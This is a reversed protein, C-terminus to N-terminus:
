ARLKSLYEHLSLGLSDAMRQRTQVASPISPGYDAIPKDYARGPRAVFEYVYPVATQRYLRGCHWLARDSYALGARNKIYESDARKTKWWHVWLRQKNHTLCLKKHYIKTSKKASQTTKYEMRYFPIPNHNDIPTMNKCLASLGTLQSTNELSSLVLRSKVPRKASKVTIKGSKGIPGSDINKINLSPYLLSISQFIEKRGCFTNQPCGRSKIMKLVSEIKRDGGSAFKRDVLRGKRGKINVLRDSMAIRAYSKNKCKGPRREPKPKYTKSQKRYSRTQRSINFKLQDPHGPHSDDRMAKEIHGYIDFGRQGCERMNLVLYNEGPKARLDAHKKLFYQPRVKGDLSIQKDDRYILGKDEFERLYRLIQKHELGTWNNIFRKLPKYYCLQGRSRGYYYEVGLSLSNHKNLWSLMALYVQMARPRHGRHGASFQSFRPKSIKLFFKKM